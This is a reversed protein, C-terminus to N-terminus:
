FRRETKSLNATDFLSEFRQGLEDMTWNDPNVAQRDFDPETMLGITDGTMKITCGTIDEASDSLLYGAAPAIDAPDPVDDEDPRIEEPINEVMRTFARPMLANVRINYRHLERAATRMLGLVGAKGAGYNAQGINGLAAESSVCLFSRQTDLEDDTERAVDRWHAATNRLLTFHGHLHVNIVTKWEDESMKHVMSDRLVGAFNVVGDIRGYEDVVDDVLESTYDMSTIDGFHAMGEGGVDEIQAVTDNAPEESAGEGELSSGLDNVVVTAGARALEVATAEGLGHGGGAVICVKDSLMMWFPETYIYLHEPTRPQHRTRADTLSLLMPTRM